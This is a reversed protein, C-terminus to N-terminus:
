EKDKPPTKGPKAPKEAFFSTVFAVALLVIAPIIIGLNRSIPCTGLARAGFFIYLAIGALVAGLGFAINSVYRFIKGRKPM